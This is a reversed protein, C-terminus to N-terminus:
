DKKINASVVNQLITKDPIFLIPISNVNIASPDEINKNDDIIRNIAVTTGAGTVSNLVNITTKTASSSLIAAIQKAQAAESKTMTSLVSKSLDLEISKAIASIEANSLLQPGITGLASTLVKVPHKEDGIIGGVSSVETISIDISANAVTAAACSVKIAVSAGPILTAKGGFLYRQGTPEITPEGYPYYITNQNVLGNNSVLAVNGNGRNYSRINCEPIKMLYIYFNMM